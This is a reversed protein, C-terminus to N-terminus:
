RLDTFAIFHKRRGRSTTNNTRLEQCTLLDHPIMRHPGHEQGEESDTPLKLGPWDKVLDSNLFNTHWLASSGRDTMVYSSTFSHLIQCVHVLAYVEATCTCPCYICM